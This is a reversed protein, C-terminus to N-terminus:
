GAAAAEEEASPAPTGGSQQPSESPGAAAGEPAEVPAQEPAGV